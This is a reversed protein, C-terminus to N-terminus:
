LQSRAITAVLAELEKKGIPGEVKYGNLLLTPFHQIKESPRGSEIIEVRVLNPHSSSMHELVKKLATTDAQKPDLFARILVTPQGVTATKQSLVKKIRELMANKPPPGRRELRQLVGDVFAAFATPPLGGILRFGNVFSTPTSEVGNSAGLLIDDLIGKRTDPHAICAKWPDMKLGIQAASEEMFTKSLKNQAGFLANAMEQFHGQKNACYAAYAAACAHKHYDGAMLPNCQSSLPYHRFVIRTNPREKKFDELSAWFKRCYPCQFDSFKVVTVLAPATGIAAANPASIAFSGDAWAVNAKRAALAELKTTYFSLTSAYLLYGGFAMMLFAASFVASLGKAHLLTRLNQIFASFLNRKGSYSVAYALGINIVYLGICFACWSDQSYSYGALVMSYLLALVSVFQLLAAGILPLKGLLM